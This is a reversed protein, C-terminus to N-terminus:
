TRRWELVGGHMYAEMCTRRWKHVGGNMYAEM